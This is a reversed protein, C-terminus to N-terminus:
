GGSSERVAGVFAEAYHDTTYRALYEKQGGESLRSIRDPDALLENVVKALREISWGADVEVIWKGLTDRFVPDDPMDSVVVCGAAMAEVIKALAYRYVSTCCLAIRYKRLSAAYENFQKEVAAMDPLRYGPHPRVDSPIAHAECLRKWKARLPYIGKDCNGTLLCADYRNEYKPRWFIDKEAVHPIHVLRRGEDALAKMRDFDNAHHLIVLKADVARAEALREDVSWCDNFAIAKLSPWEKVGRVEGAKFCWVCDIPVMYMGFKTLLNDSLSRSDDYDGWGPGFVRIDVGPHRAVARGHTVRGADVKKTYMAHPYLYLIKM